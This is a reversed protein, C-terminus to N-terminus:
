LPEDIGVITLANFIGSKLPYPAGNVEQYFEIGLVLFITLPSNPTLNCALNLVATPKEDIPLIASAAANREFAGMIFDVAAAAAVIRFHTTGIPAAVEHLPIFPQIAVSAEGSERNIAKSYLAFLTDTLQANGNFEFGELLTKQGDNVNRLGRMSVPDTKVVRMMERTLRTTTSRDRVNLMQIRFANRLLKSAKGARAFEAGNERTRVFAPDTALRTATLSTKQKAIFGDRTRVFTLDDITGHLKIVGKQKAM